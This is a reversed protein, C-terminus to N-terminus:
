IRSRFGEGLVEHVNNVIVFAHPDIAKVMQVLTGVEKRSVVTYLVQRPQNTFVGMAEVATAGRGMDEVVHHAIEGPRSSIIIASRAYDFGDIIVDVLHSSVFLLFFAYLTLTLAPREVDLGRFHIVFGAFTIVLSDVVMFVVGPKLGWRKQGVAALVDSGATTGRFKFIIGLGLGLLVSGVLILFLFDTQRLNVVAPHEHLRISGLGPVDGRLLDIFFSNTTFGVLTRVGFQKGLERIGWIYLPINFLWMTLGVPVKNGSLYHVAMSLGSVGGPVVKADVLFVAIGVAMIFSGIMIAVYDRLLGRRAIAGALTSSAMMGTGTGERRGNGPRRRRVVTGRAGAPARASDISTVAKGVTSLRSSGDAAAPGAVRAVEAEVARDFPEAADGIDGLARVVAVRL